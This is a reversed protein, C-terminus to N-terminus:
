GEFRESLEKGQREITIDWFPAQGSVAKALAEVLGIEGGNVKRVFDGPRLGAKDAPAGRRVQLVLVGRAFPDIGLEDGLAPSMNVVVAGSLPNRGGLERKDRAPVEPPAEAEMTLAQAEGQRWVRMPLSEGIPTTAIRFKLATTDRIEHGGLALIIDGRQLGARAAASAPYVDEIIVGGPRDLGLSNAIDATVPRGAAGMWPRVLRGGKVVGNVVARVLNSPIAFGIGLSGGTKSFIATNIGLLRGDLAVLAGGSNGPNIAADTQLYFNLDSQGNGMQTRALASVIGSTVTQGVGFPNGIALVIDGVEATDSDALKLVPLDKPADKLRLIALDTRDDTGVIAAEFERRDHLVVKIEDAGEIVHNNTVILGDARVIVGSGLSNQVKQKPRKGFEFGLQPGLFRQFFPDDFLTPRQRQAVKKATFINVVAPTVKQVVPAYSLMVQEQSKPVERPAAQVVPGALILATFLATVLRYSRNRPLQGTMPHDTEIATTFVPFM